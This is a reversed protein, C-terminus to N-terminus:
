MSVAASVAVLVGFLVFGYLKGVIGHKVGCFSDTIWWNIANLEAMPRSVITTMSLTCVVDM